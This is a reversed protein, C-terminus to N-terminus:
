SSVEDGQGGIHVALWLTTEGPATWAVRHRCGAPIMLYDGPKLIRTIEEQEMVLGASGTLLLIWEDWGQDYWEGDPTAQGHSIIREIRIGGRKALTEFIEESLNSTVPAFINRSETMAVRVTLASVGNPLTDAPTHTFVISHITGISTAPGM